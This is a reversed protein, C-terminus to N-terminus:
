SVKNQYNVKAGQQLLLQCTELHGYVAATILPSEGLEQM